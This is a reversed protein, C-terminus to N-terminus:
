RPWYTTGTPNLYNVQIKLDYNGPTSPVPIGASTAPSGTIPPPDVMAPWPVYSDACPHPQCFSYQYSGTTSSGRQSSNLVTLQSGKLATTPVTFAPAFDTVNYTTTTTGAYDPTM